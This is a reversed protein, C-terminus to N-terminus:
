LIYECSLVIKNETNLTHGLLDYYLKNVFKICQIWLSIVIKNDTNLIYWLFNYDNYENTIWM